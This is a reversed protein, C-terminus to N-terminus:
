ADTQRILHDKRQPGPLFQVKRELKKRGGKGPKRLKGSSLWVSASLPVSITSTQAVKSKFFFTPM